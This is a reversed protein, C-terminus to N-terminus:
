ARLPRVNSQTKGFRPARQRITTAVHDEDLHGYHREVMRTTSHGLNKAVIPLDIGAKISLSAWTHRLQHFGVPPDIKARACASKMRRIQHSPGWQRGFMTETGARGAVLQSFFQVGDDTLVVHRSGGEKTLPFYITGNDPDFDRVRM